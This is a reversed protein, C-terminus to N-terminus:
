SGSARGKGPYPGTGTAVVFQRVAPGYWAWLPLGKRVAEAALGLRTLRNGTGVFHPPWDTANLWARDLEDHRAGFRPLDKDGADDDQHGLALLQANAEAMATLFQKSCVYLRGLGSQQVLELSGDADRGTLVTFLAATHHPLEGGDQLLPSCLSKSRGTIPVCPGTAVDMERLDREPVAFFVSTIDSPPSVSHAYIPSPPRLAQRALNQQRRTM